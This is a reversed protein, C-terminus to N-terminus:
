KVEEYDTDEISDGGMKNQQETAHAKKRLKNIRYQSILDTLGYFIATAGLIIVVYEASGWPKFIVILGALLIIIPYFYHIAAIPGFQRAAALTALQAIAALILICGLIIMLVTTFFLPISVLLIGLIISGIGNLSLLGDSRQAAQQQRYSMIFAMMGTLLFLAGIVIVITKLAVHPWIILVIGILISILARYVANRYTTKSYIIKM